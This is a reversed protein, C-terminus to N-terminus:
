TEQGFNQICKESKGHTGYAGGMEEVRIQYGLLMKHFANM